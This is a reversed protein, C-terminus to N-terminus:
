AEEARPECEAAVWRAYDEAGGDVEFLLIEPMEYPHLDRVRRVLRPARERTTKLIVLVEDDEEVQDKWWYISVLGSVVNGCAALREEVLERALFEGTEANPATVHAVRLRGVADDGGAEAAEGTPEREDREEREDRV